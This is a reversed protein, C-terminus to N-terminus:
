GCTHIQTWESQGWFQGPYISLNFIKVKENMRVQHDTPLWSQWQDWRTHHQPHTESGPGEREAGPVRARAQWDHVRFAGLPCDVSVCVRARLCVNPCQFSASVLPAMHSFCVGVTYTYSCVTVINLKNLSPLVSSPNHWAPPVKLTWGIHTHARMHSNMVVM